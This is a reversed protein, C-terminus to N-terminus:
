TSAIKAYKGQIFIREVSTGEKRNVTQRRIYENQIVEFGCSKVLSDMYETSFYYARTGDQRVYFNDDLKHGDSFRLM